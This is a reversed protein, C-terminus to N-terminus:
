AKGRPENRDRQDGVGGRLILKAQVNEFGGGRLSNCGRGGIGVGVVAMVRLRGFHSGRNSDGSWNMRRVIVVRWPSVGMLAMGVARDATSNRGHGSERQRRRKGEIDGEIEYSRGIDDM